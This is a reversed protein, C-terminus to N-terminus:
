PNENPNLKGTAPQPEQGAWPTRKLEEGRPVIRDETAHPTFEKEWDPPAPDVGPRLEYAGGDDGVNSAMAGRPVDLFNYDKAGTPRCKVLRNGGEDSLLEAVLALLKARSMARLAAPLQHRRGNPPERSISTITFPHGIEAYWEVAKLMWAAASGAVAASVVAERETVDLLLGNPQRLMTRMGYAMEPNNAKVVSFNYLRGPKVEEGLRELRAKFDPAHWIGLVCRFAGTLATSGRISNRMDEATYIRTNNGPKRVHHTVFLAAGFKGCVYASAAQVYENIVTASNEEGHLTTNLTDIIVTKLNPVRELQDLWKRWQTGLVPQKGPGDKEVLPFAGGISMTPILTFRDGAAEWMEKNMMGHLRIALEDEDDETTFMVVNGGADDALPMGCWSELKGPRHGAIKAAYDLLLFTKGVGGEAALLHSKGAMVLGEVLFKREPIQIKALKRINFDVLPRQEVWEGALNKYHSDLTAPTKPAPQAPVLKPPEIAGKERLDKQVLDHWERDFKAKPWPPVMHSEMWALTVDKAQELTIKGGRAEHIHVGAARNFSTWRNREEDGGEHIDQTLVPVIDAKEGVLDGKAAKFASFNLGGGAMSYVSPAAVLVGPALVIGEFPEMTGAAICLEDFDYEYKTREIVRCEREVGGKAYVSGPLRIVQTVRGFAPDGGIKLAIEKRLLAMRHVDSTPETLRWYAHLKPAGIETIGGSEVVMSPTGLYKTAHALKAKTDGKDIDVVLTTFQLIRDETAKNDSLARPSVAAPVIYSAHHHASWRQVHGLILDAVLQGGQLPPLTQAENFVGEAATGKEGLGRLVISYAYNEDGPDVYGFVMDLYDTLDARNPSLSM